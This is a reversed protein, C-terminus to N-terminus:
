TWLRTWFVPPPVPINPLFPQYFPMYCSRTAWLNKRPALFKIIAHMMDQTSDRDYYIVEKEYNLDAIDKIGKEVFAIINKNASQAMGLEKFLWGTAAYEGSELKDRQSKQM